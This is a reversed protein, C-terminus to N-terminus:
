HPHNKGQANAFDKIHMRKVVFSFITIEWYKSANQPKQEIIDYAKSLKNKTKKTEKWM